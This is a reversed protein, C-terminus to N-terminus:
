MRVPGSLHEHIVRWTEGQREWILTVQQTTDLRKGTEIEVASVALRLGTWAVGARVELFIIEKLECQFNNLKTIAMEWNDAFSQWGKMISTTPMLTDFAFYRETQDYFGSIHEASFTGEGPSWATFMEEIRLRIEEKTAETM